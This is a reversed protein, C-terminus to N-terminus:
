VMGVRCELVAGRRGWYVGQLQSPWVAVAFREIKPSGGPCFTGVSADTPVTPPKQQPADFKAMQEFLSDPRTPDTTKYFVTGWQKFQGKAAATCVMQRLQSRNKIRTLQRLGAAKRVSLFENALSDEIRALAKRDVSPPIVNTSQAHCLTVSILVATALLKMPSGCIRELQPM